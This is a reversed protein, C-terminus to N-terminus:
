KLLFNNIFFLNFIFQIKCHPSINWVRHLILIWIFYIFLKLIIFIKFFTLFLLQNFNFFGFYTNLKLLCYFSIISFFLYFHPLFSLFSSQSFILFKNAFLEYFIIIHIIILYLCLNFFNIWKYEFKFINKKLYLKNFIYYIYLQKNPNPNPNPNPPHPPPAPGGGGGGGGGGV